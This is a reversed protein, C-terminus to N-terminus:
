LDPGLRLHLRFGAPEDLARALDVRLPGLPSRWRLGMGVGRAPEFRREFANGLDLFLAGGFREGFMREWEVSATLLRRGGIVRGEGDRAGLARFDYGRVSLDGGAFFRLSAPLTELPDGWLRGASVRALLRDRAGLARVLRTEGELRLFRRDAGTAPSGAALRLWWALGRAPLIRDDARVGALRLTPYALTSLREIGGVAFREREIQYGYALVLAEEALARHREARLAIRTSDLADTDQREFLLALEDLTLPHDGPRRLAAGLWQRRQGVEGEARLRDGRANLWRREFSASVGAGTDTALLLGASFHDRAAPALSLRITALGPAEESDVSLEIREYLDLAALRREYEALLAASFPMGPRFPALAAVRGPALPGGEVAITGFRHRPGSDWALRVDVAGQEPHVEARAELERFSLYGRGRLARAIAAKGEEYVRHRFVDGERLAFSALAGQIEADAEAAGAMRLRLTRVRAPPGPEVRYRAEFGGEVPRLEAEVTAQYHGFPELARRIEGRGRELAARLRAESLDARDVLASLGLHLRASREQEGSLGDIRVAVLRAAAQAQGLAALALVAFLLSRRM